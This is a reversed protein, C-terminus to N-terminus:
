EVGRFVESAGALQLKSGLLYVVDGEMLIEDANMDTMVCNNRRLAVMTLGFRRRLKIESVYTGEAESNKEVRVASLELDPLFNSIGEPKVIDLETKRFVEYAGSRVTSILSEIENKPFLYRNLVRAFIEVSTEFEEPIVESAGLMYLYEVDRTFRTRVIIHISPNLERALEIISYTSPADSIAIVAISAREIGAARLVAEQTADGYVAPVGLEKYHQVQEAGSDVIVYPIGTINTVNAVNQGNMGLGIIITHNELGVDPSTEDIKKIGRMIKGPLNMKSARKHVRPALSIMLPTFAMSFIAVDLFLQYPADEFLGVQRGKGALIFSFEGIQSLSLGVIIQAKLPYGLLFTAFGSVMTKLLLVCLTVSAVLIPHDLLFKTNLLMGISVFFFSTFLDRFPMMNGLAQHSYDSESIILGALFAGLALSLGLWSTFWAITFVILFISILFLERNGTRAIEHLIWPILYRSSVIILAIIVLGKILVSSVSVAPAIGKGALMPIILLMPVAVLDQFILIGMAARGQQTDVEAREQLMKMAIATSSLATLFGYFVSQNEAFGYIRFFLYSLSGTLVVQLGGAILVTRRIKYLTKMSFELGITFLLLIVGLEAIADISATDTVLGFGNPGTMAGTFLFGVISPIRAKQFLFLVLTALAFVVLLQEAFSANIM